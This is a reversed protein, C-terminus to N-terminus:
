NNNNNDYFTGFQIIRHFPQQQLLIRQIRLRLQQNMVDTRAVITDTPM